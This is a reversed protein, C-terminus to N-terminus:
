PRVPQIRRMETMIGYLIFVGTKFLDFIVVKNSPFKM